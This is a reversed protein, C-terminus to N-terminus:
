PSIGKRSIKITNFAYNPTFKLRANPGSIDADYDGLNDINGIGAYEVVSAEEIASGSSQLLLLDSVQYSEILNNVSFTFGTGVPSSLDTNNATLVDDNAYGSGREIITITSISGGIYANPNLSINYGLEVFDTVSVDTAIRFTNADIGEIYYVTTGGYGPGPLINFEPGYGLVSTFAAGTLPAVTPADITFGPAVTYGLGTTSTVSAVGLAVTNGIGLSGFTATVPM